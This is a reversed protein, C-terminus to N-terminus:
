RGVYALPNRAKPPFKKTAKHQRVKHVMHQLKRGGAETSGDGLM